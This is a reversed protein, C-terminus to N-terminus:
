FIKNQRMILRSKKAFSGAPNRGRLESNLVQYKLKENNDTTKCKEKFGQYNTSVM